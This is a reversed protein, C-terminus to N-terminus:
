ARVAPRRRRALIILAPLALLILWSSAPEPTLLFVCDECPTGASNVVTYGPFDVALATNFAGRLANNGLQMIPMPTSQYTVGPGPVNNTATITFGWQFGGLIILQVPNTASDYICVLVSDAVFTYPTGPVARMNLVAPMDYIYPGVGNNIGTLTNDPYTVDYYPLNDGVGAGINQGQRPDIFPRNPTPTFGTGTSSTVLQMWRLDSPDCCDSLATPDPINYHATITVGSLDAGTAGTYPTYNDINIYGVTAAFTSTAALAFVAALRTFSRHSKM